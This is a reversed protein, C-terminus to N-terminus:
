RSILMGIVVGGLAAMVIAKWPSDHVFDDTTENAVRYRKGLADQVDSLKKKTRVGEAASPPTNADADWSQSADRFSGESGVASSESRPPPADEEGAPFPYASGNRETVLSNVSKKPTEDM